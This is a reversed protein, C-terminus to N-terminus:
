DDRGIPEALDFPAMEIEDDPVAGVPLVFVVSALVVAAMVICMTRKWLKKKM